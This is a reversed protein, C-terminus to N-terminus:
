HPHSTGVVLVWQHAYFVDNPQFRFGYRLKIEKPANRFMTFITKSVDPKSKLWDRLSNSQEYLELVIDNFGATQMWSCLAGATFIHKRDPTMISFVEWWWDADEPEYCVIQSILVRRRAVRMMERLADYPEMYHLGQRCTVLDFAKSPFPLHHSSGVVIQHLRHKGQRLMSASIDLGVVLRTRDLFIEGVAGTGTAVDLVTDHPEPQLISSHLELLTRNRYNWDAENDYVGARQRYYAQISAIDTDESRNM